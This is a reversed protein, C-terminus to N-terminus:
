TAFSEPTSRSYTHFRRCRRARLVGQDSWDFASSRYHDRFISDIEAVDGAFGSLTEPRASISSRHLFWSDM